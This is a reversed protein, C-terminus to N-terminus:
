WIQAFRKSLILSLVKVFEQKSARHEAFYSPIDFKPLLDVTISDGEKWYSSIQLIAPGSLGRHTFLLNERFSINGLKVIADISIGSLDSYIRRDEDNWTLPVLAPRTENVKLGFQEAIKYGFNTAGMKPISLGGTAIVLSTCTMQGSTTQLTFVENKEVSTVKCNTKIEVNANHCEKILMDIIQRSSDDCFLQGLTKEHYAIGHKTVLKMFDDSTYRSLASKCFHPNESLFSKAPTDLNTFNCRGGGSIAIKRAILVNHEIVLVSRGRKGAEIAAM